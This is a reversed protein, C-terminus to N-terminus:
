SLKKSHGCIFMEDTTSAQAEMLPPGKEKEQLSTKREIIFKKFKIKALIFKMIM